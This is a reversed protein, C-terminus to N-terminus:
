KKLENTLEVLSEAAQSFDFQDLHLKVPRLFKKIPTEKFTEEITELYDRAKLNSDSLLNGLEEIFPALKDYDPLPQSSEVGEEISYKQELLAIGAVLQNMSQQSATM